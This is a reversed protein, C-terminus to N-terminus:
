YLTLRGSAGILPVTSSMIQNSTKPDSLRKIFLSSMRAVPFKRLKLIKKETRLLLGLVIRVSYAQAHRVDNKGYYVLRKRSVNSQHNFIRFRIGEKQRRDRLFWGKGKLLPKVHCIM